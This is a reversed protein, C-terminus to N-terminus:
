YRGARTYYVTVVIYAKETKKFVIRLDRNGYNKQAIKRGKKSDFLNDPNLLTEQIIHFPIRRELINEKVHITFVINM